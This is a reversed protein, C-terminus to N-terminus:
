KADWIHTGFSLWSDRTNRVNMGAVISTGHVTALHARDAGNEPIDQIHCNIRFENSGHFTWFGSEIEEINPLQWPQENEAHYWVYIIDNV